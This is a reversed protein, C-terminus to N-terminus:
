ETFKDCSLMTRYRVLPILLVLVVLVTHDHPIITATRGPISYREFKVDFQMSVYTHLYMSIRLVKPRYESKLPTTARRVYTRVYM